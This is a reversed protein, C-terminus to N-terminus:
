YDVEVRFQEPDIGGEENLMSNRLFGTAVKQETTSKPLLDGALQEMTFQDFPLDKNLANIVWDRYPWITRPMDKEYGNTDAYRAVDLWHRGWREGYHPSALQVELAKEYADANQDAEFKELEDVSPPLGTLDLHMRRLLTRRGAEPSPQLGEKELRALVFADIPSRAWNPNTTQPVPPRAPAKFAWHDTKDAPNGGASTTASGTKGGGPAALVIEAPWKAGQDIWARLIGVQEATLPEGKGSPPM